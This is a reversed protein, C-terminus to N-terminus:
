KSSRGEAGDRKKHRECFNHIRAAVEVVVKKPRSVVVRFYGHMHFFEGPVVQVNEEDELKEYFSFDDKIDEFLDTNVKVMIFMSGQPVTCSLGPSHQIADALCIANERLEEINRAFYSEPTQSLIAPLAGQVLACPGLTISCLNLMGRVVSKAYGHTDMLLVWGLRWGPIMFVKSLGSLIFRPVHTDFAAVSTFAEGSFVLGAYVEDSILPLRLEECVRILEAIHQRSFNSGSPNSPNNVLIAKTKGDVLSRLHDFDIEWNGDEKCRYHRAEVAHIDSMFDYFPFCPMPVLINDGEDCLATLAMVLAHSVGCSILVNEAKCHAAQQEAFNKGWYEAVAQRAEPLGAVPPYKNHQNGEVCRVFADVVVTPAVLNGDHTPDGISLKLQSKHAPAKSKRTSVSELRNVARTSMVSPELVYWSAM